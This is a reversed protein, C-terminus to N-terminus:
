IKTVKILCEDGFKKLIEVEMKVSYRVNDIYFPKVMIGRQKKPFLRM